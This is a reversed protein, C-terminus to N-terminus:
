RMVIVGQPHSEKEIMKYLKTIVTLTITCQYNLVEYLRHTLSQVYFDAIYLLMLTKFSVM